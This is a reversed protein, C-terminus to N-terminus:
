ADVVGYDRYYQPHLPDIGEQVRLRGRVTVAENYSDSDRVRNSAYFQVSQFLQLVNGIATNASLKDVNGKNLTAIVALTCWNCSYM